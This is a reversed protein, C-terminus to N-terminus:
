LYTMMQILNIRISEGGNIIEIQNKIKNWLKRYSGLIKKSNKTLDFILYINENNEEIIYVDVDIFVLCLLNESEMM